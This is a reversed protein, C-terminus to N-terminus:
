ETLVKREFAQQSFIEMLDPIDAALFSISSREPLLDGHSRDRVPHESPHSLRKQVASVM